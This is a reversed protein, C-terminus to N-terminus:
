YVQGGMRPVAETLNIAALLPYEHERYAPLDRLSLLSFLASDCADGLSHPM